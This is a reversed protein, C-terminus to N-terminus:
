APLSERKEASTFIAESKEMNIKLMNKKALWAVEDAVCLELKALAAV